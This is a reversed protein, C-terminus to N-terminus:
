QASANDSFTDISGNHGFRSVVLTANGSELVYSAERGYQIDFWSVDARDLEYRVESPFAFSGDDTVACRYYIESGDFFTVHVGFRYQSGPQTAAVWTIPKSFDIDGNLDMDFDLPWTYEIEPLVVNNFAPFENGPIDLILNEDAGIDLAPFKYTLRADIDIGVELNVEALSGFDNRVTLVEGASLDHLDANSKFISRHHQEVSGVTNITHCTDPTQYVGALFEAEETKNNFLGYRTEFQTGYQSLFGYSRGSSNGNYDMLRGDRVPAEEFVSATSEITPAFAVNTMATAGDGIALNTVQGSTLSLNLANLDSQSIRNALQILEDLEAQSLESGSSSDLINVDSGGAESAPAILLNSGNLPVGLPTNAFAPRGQDPQKLTSVNIGDNATALPVFENTEANSLESRGANGVNNSEVADEFVGSSCGSIAVISLAVWATLRGKINHKCSLFFTIVQNSTRVSVTSRTSFTEM